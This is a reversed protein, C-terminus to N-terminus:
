PFLFVYRFLSLLCVSLSFHYESFVSLIHLERLVVRQAMGHLLALTSRARHTCHRDSQLECMYYFQVQIVDTLLWLCCCCYCCYCYYCCCCCCCCCCYCCCCCCCYCCSCCCCCSRFQQLNHPRDKTSSKHRQLSLPPAKYFFNIPASYYAQIM